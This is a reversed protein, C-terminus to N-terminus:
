EWGKRYTAFTKGNKTTMDTLIAFGMDRLDFIRGSLRTIRYKEFAEMSTISGYKELHEKIIQAQSKKM